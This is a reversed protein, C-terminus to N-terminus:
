KEEWEQLYQEFENTDNQTDERSLVSSLPSQLCDLNLSPVSQPKILAKEPTRPLPDFSSEDTCYSAETHVEDVPFGRSRLTSLVASHRSVAARLASCEAELKCLSRRASRNEVLLYKWMMDTRPIDTLSCVAISKLKETLIENNKEATELKRALECTEKSLKGLKRLIVKKEEGNAQLKVRAAKLEEAYQSVITANSQKSLASICDEYFQKVKALITGFKRDRDIVSQFVTRYADCEFDFRNDSGKRLEKLRSTLQMELELVDSNFEEASPKGIAPQSQQPCIPKYGTATSFSKQILAESVTRKHPPKQKDQLRVIKELLSPSFCETLRGKGKLGPDSKRETGKCQSRRSLVRPKEKPNKVGLCVKQNM